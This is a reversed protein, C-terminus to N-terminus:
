IVSDLGVLSDPDFPLNRTDEPLEPRVTDWLNAHSLGLNHGLEHCIVGLSSGQLWVGRGGVAGLGGGHCGPVPEVRVMDLDFADPEVGASRTANRAHDMLAGPGAVAYYMKPQPLTILPGITSIVSLQNFSSEVFYRNAVEMVAAAEAETVPERPDDPFRARMFLLRKTGHSWTQFRPPETAGRFGPEVEALSNLFDEAVTLSRL